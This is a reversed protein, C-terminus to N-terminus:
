SNEILETQRRPHNRVRRIARLVLAAASFIALAEFCKLVPGLALNAGDTISAMQQEESMQEFHIATRDHRIKWKEAIAQFAGEM